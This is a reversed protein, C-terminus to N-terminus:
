QRLYFDLLLGCSITGKYKRHGCAATFRLSFLLLGIIDNEFRM